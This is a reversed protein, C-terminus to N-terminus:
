LCSLKISVFDSTIKGRSAPHVAMIISRDSEFTYTKGYERALRGILYISNSSREMQHLKVRGTQATSRFGMFALPPSAVM